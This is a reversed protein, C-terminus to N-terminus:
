EEEMLFRYVLLKINSWARGFLGLSSVKNVTVLDISGVEEEGLKFIMKGVIEDELIPAQLYDNLSIFSEIKKFDRM